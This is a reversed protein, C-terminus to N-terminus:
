AMDAKLRRLGDDISIEPKWELDRMAAAPSFWHSKSLQLALFRTVPPEWGPRFLRGAAEVVAGLAYAPLAPIRRRIPPLDLTQLIRGLFDWCNVPEPENIFYAKGACAAGPRLHELAALHAAATNEVYSVSVLNKGDGIRVLRGARAKQCIRPILNTDGPGWILHPRLACTALEPSNARLVMQEARAKTAAYATLFRPPYPLSEDGGALDGRGFVVSPTSTYVLRPVGAALCADLVNRTGSVNTRFYETFRGSIGVKAAMHCVAACGDCARRLAETDELDGVVCEVGLAQLAPYVHRGFVRVERGGALLRRVVHRGLFGGGGIVLIKEM